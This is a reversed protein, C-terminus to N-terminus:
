ITIMATKYFPVTCIFKKIHLSTQLRGRIRMAISRLANGTKSSDQTIEQAATFLAITEELTGGMAAMASASNQLGDVIDINSEAASNGVANIKSM